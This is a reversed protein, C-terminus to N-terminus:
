ILSPSTAKCCNIIKVSINNPNPNDKSIEKELAKESHYKKPEQFNLNKLWIVLYIGCDTSVSEM